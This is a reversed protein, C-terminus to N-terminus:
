NPPYLPGFIQRWRMRRSWGQGKADFENADLAFAHAQRARQEFPGKRYVLSNSGPAYWYRQDRRQRALHGFFDRAMWGHYAFSRNRYPWDLIFRYALTDILMGSIPVGWYDRWIRMMRCLYKLNRNTADSVAKIAAIEARPNCRKWTGGANASPYIWSGDSAAFAPLVEFTIGDSFAVVVVQGDGFSVSTAYTGQISRKVAQLLASQGNGIYADYQGYMYGPLLFGIDLDSVGRAATDRGYSGVYRSHAISSDVGWFDWNLQRTIRQYRYAISGITTRDINYASRFRLFDIGAGM